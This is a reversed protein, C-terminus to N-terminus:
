RRIVGRLPYVANVIAAGAADADLPLGDVEEAAVDVAEEPVVDVVSAGVYMKEVGDRVSAKVGGASHVSPCMVMSSRCDYKM